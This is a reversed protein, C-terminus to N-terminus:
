DVWKFSQVYNDGNIDGYIEATFIRYLKEDLEFGPIKDLQKIFDAKSTADLNLGPILNFLTNLSTNGVVGLGSAVKKSLRGFVKMDAILTSFNYTGKLFLSLDKGKSFIQIAKAIGSDIDFSGNITQFEGTKLPTVIVGNITVGTIGSKMLNWAKLLYELSGLKPMKGKAVKFGGHGSLTQMCSKHNKGNCSLDVEGTLSGYIQNPLDFLADSISNANVGDARLVLSSNATLLNYKLDGSVNGQAIDFKFDDVSFLLKDNLSFDASLNKAFINKVLVSDAKVKANRIILNSVDVQANEDDQGSSKSEFNIKDLSKMVQNIDLNGLYIDVDRLSYPPTLRNKMTAFAVIRNSFIEGKAKIDVDSDSFDLSIDKITTDLLPIDIGTFTLFGFMEPSMISGNLVINSSFMGQKIMSKKFLMNFIKADTPNITRVKFNHFVFDKNGFSIKGKANLQPSIFERDNQSSILKDYQFNQVVVSDKSIQTDLFIRIPENADGLTSGMYYISSDEALNIEAKANLADRPGSVRASYIVDGKIKLPYTTNKNINKDIFRQTPKSNIYLNFDPKKFIDSVTGDLLVPM